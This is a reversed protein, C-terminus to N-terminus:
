KRIALHTVLQSRMRELMSGYTMLPLGYKTLNCPDVNIDERGVYLAGSRALSSGLLDCALGYMTCDRDVTVALLRGQFPQALLCDLVDLLHETYTPQFRWCNDFIQPTGTLACDLIKNFPRHSSTNPSLGFTMSLRLIEFGAQTCQVHEEAILKSRGYALTTNRAALSSIFIVRAGVENAAQVVNLTGTANVAIAMDPAAECKALNAVAAAHIIIDPKALRIQDFVAGRDMVDLEEIGSTREATKSTLALQYRALLSTSFLAGLYGRAGTMFIKM